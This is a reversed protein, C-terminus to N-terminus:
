FGCGVDGGLQVLLMDGHLIDDEGVIGGICTKFSYAGVNDEGLARYGQIAMLQRPWSEEEYDCLHYDSQYGKIPLWFM